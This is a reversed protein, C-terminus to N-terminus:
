HGSTLLVVLAGAGGEAPKAQVFAMVQNKQVLWSHVKSKLVPTKGPSGLGKGHVVRLCRLGQKHAERIFTALALRAEDSRLGHLDIEKQISWEGKRLKHTVDLGIGPRRFSLMDDTDLLTSADFEDSLADRLVAEDDKQRQKAVPPVPVPKKIAQKKDPLSQVAGVARSFLNKDADAKRAAAAVAAAQAAAQAHAEAIQKQVQKLDALTNLKVRRHHWM